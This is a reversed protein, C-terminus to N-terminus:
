RVGGGYDDTIGIQLLASGHLDSPVTGGIRHLVKALLADVGRPDRGTGAATLNARVFLVATDVNNPNRLACGVLAKPVRREPETRGRKQGCPARKKTTM